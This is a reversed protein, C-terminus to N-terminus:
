YPALLGFYRALKAGFQGNIDSQCIVTPWKWNPRGDGYVYFPGKKSTLKIVEGSTGQIMKHLKCLAM